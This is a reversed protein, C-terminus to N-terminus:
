TVMCAADRRVQLSPLAANAYLTTWEPFERGVLRALAETQRLQIPRLFEVVESIDFAHRDIQRTALRMAQERLGHPLRPMLFQFPRSHRMQRLVGHWAAMRVVDPTVNEAANFCTANALTADVDLWEYLPRMAGLPDQTLQEFSLIAVRDPGFQDIYPALQMAYHSVDLYQLDSKIAELMSRRETHHRVMHWYHSITREIPDRMLYIFRADPNFAHIREPVGDVLPRKTYNTSSEGLHIADGASHFLKLYHDESRWFGEDWAERWLTRLQKPEVFYSPEEPACMFIEPHAGLLKNLYTTGSKMAGIVFLGPRRPQLGPRPHRYIGQRRALFQDFSFTVASAAVRPLTHAHMQVAHASLLSIM